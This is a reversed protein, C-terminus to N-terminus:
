PQAPVNPQYPALNAVQPAAPADNGPAGLVNGGPRRTLSDGLERTARDDSSARPSQPLEGNVDVLKVVAEPNFARREEVKGAENVEVIGPESAVVMGADQARKALSAASRRDELDRTLSEVQNSLEREQSQLKQVTFTQTTALGSLIMALAIGFVLLPVAISSVASFKSPQAVSGVRRGRVSVVQQSGLRGRARSGQTAQSKSHPIHPRVGPQTAPQVFTASQTRRPSRTVRSNRDRTLTTGRTQRAAM